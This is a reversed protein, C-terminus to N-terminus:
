SHCGLAKRWDTGGREYSFYDRYHLVYPLISSEPPEALISGLKDAFFELDWDEHYLMLPSPSSAIDPIDGVGITLVYLGSCLAEAVVSPFGESESFLCLAFHSKMIEHADHRYGMFNVSEKIHMTAALKMLDLCEAGDGLISCRLEIGRRNMEKVLQLIRDVRKNKTLAGIFLVSNNSERPLQCISHKTIDITNRVVHVAKIGSSELVAASRNGTVIVRHSKRCIAIILARLFSKRLWYHIDTGILSMVHKKRGFLSVIFGVAGHPVAYYSVIVSNRNRLVHLSGLLWLYLISLISANRLIIPVTYYTVGSIKKGPSRRFVKLSTFCGSSLLPVLKDQLKNDGLGCFVIGIVDM